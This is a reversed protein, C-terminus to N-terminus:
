DLDERLRHDPDLLGLLRDHLKGNSALIQRGRLWGDSGRLDTVTGGAERVIAAGAAVDWPSLSLEWFADLRGAAVYALELAASGGRRVGQCVRLLRIFNRLNDPAGQHRMSAFGTCYLGDELVSTRSVSLPRGNLTAGQGRAACFMEDLCPAYIAGLLPEDNRALAISVCYLPFSHVFNTTGDLPDIFWTYGSPSDIRSDEEAFVGHDPYRRRIAGVILAESERDVRTVLDTHGKYSVDAESLVGMNRFLLLGAERATDRAFELM